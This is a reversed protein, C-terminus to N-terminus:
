RALRKNWYGPRRKVHAFAYIRITDGEVRYVIQYPFKALLCRRLRLGVPPWALPRDTILMLARDLSVIFDQALESKLESYYALADRVEARADDDFVVNM